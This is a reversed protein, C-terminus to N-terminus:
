ELPTRSPQHTDTPSGLYLLEESGPVVEAPHLDTARALQLGLGTFLLASSLLTVTIATDGDSTRCTSSSPSSCPIANGILVAGVNVGVFGLIMGALGLPSLRRRNRAEEAPVFGDSRPPAQPDFVLSDPHVWTSHAGRERIAPVALRPRMALSFEGLREVAAPAILYRDACGSVSLALTLLALRGAAGCLATRLPGLM